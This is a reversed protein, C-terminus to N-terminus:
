LLESLKIGPNAINPWYSPFQTMVSEFDRGKSRELDHSTFQGKLFEVRAKSLKTGEDCFIGSSASNMFYGNEVFDRTARLAIRIPNDVLSIGLKLFALNSELLFLRQDLIQDISIVRGSKHAVLIKPLMFRRTASLDTGMLPANLALVPKRFLHSAFSDLGTVTSIAFECNQFFVFDNADSKLESQSYDFLYPSDFTTRSFRGMRIFKLNLEHAVEEVYSKWQAFRSNRYFNDDSHRTDEPEERVCLAVYPSESFEFPISPALKRVKASFEQDITKSYKESFPYFHGRRERYLLSNKEDKKLIELVAEGIRNPIKFAQTRVFRYLFENAVHRDFCVIVIPPRTYTAEMECFFERFVALSRGISCSPFHIIIVKRHRDVVKFLGLLFKAIPTLTARRFLNRIQNELQISTMM